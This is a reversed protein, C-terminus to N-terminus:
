RKEWVVLYRNGLAQYIQAGPLEAEVLARIEAMKPLPSSAARSGNSSREGRLLSVIGNPVVRMAEVAYFLPNTPSSVGALVIRGGQRVLAKAKRLTWRANISPLSGVFLVAGFSEVAVDLHEFDTCTRTIGSIGESSGVCLVPNRGAIEESIWRNFADGRQWFAM